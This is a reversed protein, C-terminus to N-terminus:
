SAAALLVETCHLNRQMVALPEEALRRVGVVGALHFVVDASACVARAVEVDAISAVTIRLSPDATVAALNDLSGTSLDDVVQVQFGRHLLEAVLHSGIFGAGGTVVARLQPHVDASRGRPRPLLPEQRDFQVVVM